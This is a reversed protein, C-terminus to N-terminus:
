LARKELRRDRPVADKVATPVVGAVASLGKAAVDAGLQDLHTKLTYRLVTDPGTKPLLQCMLKRDM